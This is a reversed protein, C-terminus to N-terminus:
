AAERTSHPRGRRTPIGDHCVGHHKACYSSGVRQPLGCFTFPAEASPYRCSIETLEYISINLPELNVVPACVFPEAKIKPGPRFPSKRTANIKQVVAGIGTRGGVKSTSGPKRGVNSGGLGLRHAKGICANRSIGLEAGIESFPVGQAYLAKLQEIREDSWATGSHIGRPM